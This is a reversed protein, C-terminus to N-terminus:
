FNKGVPNRRSRCPWTEALAVMTLSSASMHRKAPNNNLWRCVAVTIDRGKATDPVCLTLDTNGTDFMTITADHVGMIFATANDTNPEWCWKDLDAGNVYSGQEAQAPILTGLLAIATIMKRM